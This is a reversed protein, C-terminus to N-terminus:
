QTELKQLMLVKLQQNNPDLFYSVTDEFDMGILEGMYYYSGGEKTIINRSVMELVNSRLTIQARNYKTMLDVLEKSKNTVIEDMEVTIFDASQNKVSKESLIRVVNVKDQPSMKGVYETAKNKIEIRSAKLAVEETEDFIVHTADPFKGAEWEGMSNAVRKSAKMHKVKIYDNPKETNLVLTHNPLSVWSAKESFYPHPTAASYTDSLDVGLLKGYKEAEESTLGTAYRGTDTDYLVEVAKTQAFSEGDKKGHWKKQPLPRIEVLAM